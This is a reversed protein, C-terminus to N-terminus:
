AEFRRASTPFDAVKRRQRSFSRRCPEGCFMRPRGIPVDPLPRGCNRCPSGPPRNLRLQRQIRKVQDGVARAVERDDGRNRVWLGTAIDGLTATAAAVVEEDVTKSGLM